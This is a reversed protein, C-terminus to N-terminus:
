EDSDLKALWFSHDTEGGSSYAGTKPKVALQYTLIKETEFKASPEGLKLLVETRSTQGDVLFDLLDVSAKSEPPTACGILFVLPMFLALLQLKMVNCEEARYIRSKPHIGPLDNTTPQPKSQLSGYALHFAM